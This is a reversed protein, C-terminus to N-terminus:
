EEYSTSAYYKIGNPTFYFYYYEQPTYLKIENVTKDKVRKDLRELEHLYTTKNQLPDAIDIIFLSEGKGDLLVFSSDVKAVPATYGLEEFFGDYRYGALSKGNVHYFILNKSKRDREEHYERVGKETRYGRSIIYDYIVVFTTDTLFSSYVVDSIGFDFIYGAPGYLSSCNLYYKRDNTLQLESDCGGGGTHSYNQLRLPTGKLDTVLMAVGGVDSDPLGFVIDFLVKDDATVGRFVPPIPASEGIYGNEKELKMFDEKRFAKQFLVKGNKQLRVQYHTDHNYSKHPVPKEGSDWEYVEVVSSDNLSYAQTIAKYVDSGVIVETTDYRRETDPYAYQYVTDNKPSAEPLTTTGANASGAKEQAPKEKQCSGFAIIVLLFLYTCEKKM